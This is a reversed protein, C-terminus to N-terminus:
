RQFNSMKQCFFIIKLGMVKAIVLGTEIAFSYVPICGDVELLSRV